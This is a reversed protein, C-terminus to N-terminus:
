YDSDLFRVQGEHSIHVKTAQSQGAEVTETLFDDDAKNRRNPLTM